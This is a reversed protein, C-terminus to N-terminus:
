TCHLVIYAPSTSQTLAPQAWGRTLDLTHLTKRSGSSVHPFAGLCALQMELLVPKQPSTPDHLGHIRKLLMESTSKPTELGRVGACHWGKCLPAVTKLYAFAVSKISQKQRQNLYSKVRAFMWGLWAEGAGTGAWCSMVFYLDCCIPQSRDAQTQLSSNGQNVGCQLDLARCLTHMTITASRVRLNYM